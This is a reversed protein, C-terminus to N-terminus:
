SQMKTFTWCMPCCLLMPALAMNERVQVDSGDSYAQKINDLILKTAQEAQENTFQTGVVGIYSEVAHTLADMATAATIAPPLNLTLLPDLVAVKPVLNLDKIILKRQKTTDSIVAVVTTESGTGSTTPVCYLDPLARRVRFTGALKHVPKSPCVIRAGIVKACDMVSGGGFAVIAESGIEKFRDVGQEVNEVSPNPQVGYSRSIVM